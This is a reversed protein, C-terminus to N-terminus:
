RRYATKGQLLVHQIWRDDWAFMLMGLSDLPAQQWAIDPSVVVLDASLGVALRGVDNFGLRDANGATIQHWAEAASPFSNGLNAAAEIMARAVRVMSREYGAGIDSGLVMNVEAQQLAARNMVGSQLFSNATPCHAVMSGGANLTQRDAADLFIGHGFITQPLLLGCDDYVQVYHRGDFLTKVFECEAANESLHTQVIARQQRALQGSLSLLRETCAIAFRPTVAAAMRHSAPFRECLRTAEDILQDAPRILYDPAQRDMLVQGIVGRMGRQTALELAAWASEHHVTAYACIATTGHSLCQDLVRQTMSRAYDVDQWKGEAPFTVQNLWDLLPMGHSGILDFQPLHVHADILGPLIVADHGGLDCQDTTQGCIVEIIQGQQVRITGPVLHCRAADAELLLHGSILM